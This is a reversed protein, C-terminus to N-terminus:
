LGPLADSQRHVRTSLPLLFDHSYFQQVVRISSLLFQFWCHIEAAAGLLGSVVAKDIEALSLGGNGNIDISDFLVDRAARDPMVLPPATVQASGTGGKRESKKATSLRAPLNQRSPTASASGALRQPLKQRSPTRPSEMAKADDLHAKVVQAGATKPVFEEHAAAELAAALPIRTAPSRPVPRPSAPSGPSDAPRRKPTTGAAPKRRPTHAPAQYAPAPIGSSARKQQERVAAARALEERRRQEKAEQALRVMEEAEEEQVQTSIAKAEAIARLEVKIREAIKAKKAGVQLKRDQLEDMRPLWPLM